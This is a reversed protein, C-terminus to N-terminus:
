GGVVRNYIDPDTAGETSIVLAARPRGIGLREALRNLGGDEGIRLLAALGAAGSEGSVIGEGALLRMAEFTGADDVLCFADIGERLLPWAVTSLSAM